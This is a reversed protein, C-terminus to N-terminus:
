QSVRRQLLDSLWADLVGPGPDQKRARKDDSHRRWWEVTPIAAKLDIVTARLAEREWDLRPKLRAPGRLVIGIADNGWKSAHSARRRLSVLLFRKQRVRDLYIQYSVKRVRVKGTKPDVEAFKDPNECYRGIDGATDGCHLVIDTPPKGLLGSDYKAPWPELGPLTDPWELLSIAETARVM